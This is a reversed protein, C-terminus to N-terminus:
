PASVTSWTETSPSDGIWRDNMAVGVADTTPIYTTMSDGDEAQVGHVYAGQGLADTLSPYFEIRHARNAPIHPLSFGFRYFGFTDPGEVPHLVADGLQQSGTREYIYSGGSWVVWVNSFSGTSSDNMSVFFHAASGRRHYFSFTKTGTSGFRFTQQRRDNNADVVSTLLNTTVVDNGSTLTTTSASADGAWSNPHFLQNSHALYNTRVSRVTADETYTQSSWTAISATTTTWSM